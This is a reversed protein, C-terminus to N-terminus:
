NGIVPFLKIIGTFIMDIGIAGLFFGNIRLLLEMVKDFGERFRKHSIGARLQKMGM